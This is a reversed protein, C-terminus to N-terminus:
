GAARSGSARGAEQYLFDAFAATLDLGSIGEVFLFQGQPNVELWVAEGEPTLKLDVIGMRLGLLRLVEQLRAKVDEALDAIVFPVDLNARWDLDRSKITVSHVADGFCQARVHEDGPIYEQYIAPCLMISEDSTLDDPTLMGTVMPAKSTGSVVKVVVRSDLRACFERVAAPDQSVLTRPVRFGARQAARLQVLKNGALQTNLPHSIWTGRFDNLLIGALAVRCDNDILDIHEPQVVTPPVQQSYGVRRWWTVDLTGVDVGGGGRVPLRSATTPNEANSWCLISSGSIRDSEILYCRVDRRKELEKQIIHAHLDTAASVIGIHRLSLSM